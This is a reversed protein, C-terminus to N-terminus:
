QRAKVYVVVPDQTHALVNRNTFWRLYQLWNATPPVPKRLFSWEGDLSNFGDPRPADAPWVLVAADAPARSALIIDGSDRFSWTMEERFDPHVVILGDNERALQLANSRLERAQQTSVPSPLPEGASSFAIGLGGSVFPFAGVVLAPVLLSPSAQRNWAVLGLSLVALVLLLAVITKETSDGAKDNRAWDLMFSVAVLAVFLALPVLYRANRWDADLMAQWARVVGPGALIALPLTLSTVPVPSESAASFIFWSLAIGAWALLTLEFTEYDGDRVRHVLIAAASAIGAVVIPLVYLVAIELTSATAWPRDFSAAFLDLPPVRLGGDLGLGFQFTAALVGAVVGVGAWVAIEPRPYERRALTVAGWGLLLLLPLPGATVLLFAAVAWAWTPLTRREIAVALWTVLALDFGMASASTGLAIGPGDLALFILALLAGAEGLRVRLCYIAGPITATALFALIRGPIESDSWHLLLAVIAQFLTPIFREDAVGVRAQWAGSLGDLEPGGRIRALHHRPSLRLRCETRAM